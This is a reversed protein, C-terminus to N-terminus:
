AWSPKLRPTSPSWNRTASRGTSAGAMSRGSSSITRCTACPLAWGTGLWHWTTGGVAKLYTSRFMEPGAQRYWGGLDSTVPHMAQPVPPYPSEPVKNAAQWFREVGEQRDVRAGAELIAVKVGRPALEAAALSGAVGSGIVVVEALVDSMPGVGAAGVLLKDARRLLRRAQHLCARELPPRRYLRGGRTGRTGHLPRFVLRRDPSGSGRRDHRSRADPRGPRRAGRGQGPGPLRDAAQGCGRLR